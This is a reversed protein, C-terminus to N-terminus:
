SKNKEIYKYFKALTDMEAVHDIPIEVGYRAEIEMVMRLPMVSDWQPISNYSTEPTLKEAPLEMLDAVFSLFAEM